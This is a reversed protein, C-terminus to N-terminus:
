WSVIYFENHFFYPFNLIINSPLVVVELVPCTPLNGNILLLKPSYFERTCKCCMKMIQDSSPCRLEKWKRVIKMVAAIFISSCIDRKADYLTSTTCTWSHYLQILHYIYKSSELSGGCQNGYDRSRNASGGMSLLNEREVVNM